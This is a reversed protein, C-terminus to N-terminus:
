YMMKSQQDKTHHHWIFKVLGTTTVRDVNLEHHEARRRHLLRQVNQRIHNMNVQNFMRVLTEAAQVVYGFVGAIALYTLEEAKRQVLINPSILLMLRAENDWSLIHSQRNELSHKGLHPYLEKVVNLVPSVITKGLTFYKDEVALQARKNTSVGELPLITAARKLLNPPVYVVLVLQTPLEQRTTDWSSWVL